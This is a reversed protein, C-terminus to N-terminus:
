QLGYGRQPTWIEISIISAISWHILNNKWWTSNEKQGVRDGM